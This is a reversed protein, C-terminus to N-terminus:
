IKDRINKAKKRADDNEKNQKKTKYIKKRREIEKNIINDTIKLQFTIETTVWKGLFNMGKEPCGIEIDVKNSFWSSYIAGKKPNGYSKMIDNLFSSYLEKLFNFNNEEKTYVELKTEHLSDNFFSFIYKYEVQDDIKIFEFSAISDIETVLYSQYWSSKQLRFTTDVSSKVNNFSSGWKFDKYGSDFLKIGQPLIVEVSLLIYIFILYQRKM